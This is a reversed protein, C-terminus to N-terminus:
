KENTLLHPHQYINGIVDWEWEGSGVLESLMNSEHDHGDLDFAPYDLASMWAVPHREADIHTGDEATYSWLEIIDGEYIEKGKKDKLGTFQMLVTDPVIENMVAKWIFDGDHIDDGEVECTGEDFDVSVVPYMKGRERGFARFKIERM